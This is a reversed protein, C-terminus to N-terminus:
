ANEKAAKKKRAALIESIEKMEGIAFLPGLIVPVMFGVLHMVFVIALANASPIGFFYHIGIYAFAHWSGVGAPVPIAAGTSTLIILVFMHYIPVHFGFARIVSWFALLIVFWTAMSWFYVLCFQKFSKIATLGDIFHRLVKELKEAFKDSIKSFVKHFISMFKETKLNLLVFFVV